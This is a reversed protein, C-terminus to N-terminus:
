SRESTHNSSANVSSNHYGRSYAKRYNTWRAGNHQAVRLRASKREEQRRKSEGIKELTNQQSIGLERRSGYPYHASNRHPCYEDEHSLSKCLFCHKYLGEYELEVEIVAKSPLEIDMRMILPQLGNVLVRLRAKDAIKTEVPGIADGIANM